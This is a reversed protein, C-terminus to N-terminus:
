YIFNGNGNFKHYIWGSGSEIIGGTAVPENSQYKIIVIGNKGAANYFGGSGSATTSGGNAYVGLSYQGPGGYSFDIYGLNQFEAPAIGGGAGTSSAASGAGGGSGGYFNGPGFRIGSSGGNGYGGDTSTPQLGTGPTYIDGGLSIWAGGGSGGNSGEEVGIDGGQGGGLATKSLFTSNTGNAGRAGGGGITVPYTGQSLISSSVIVGGAGGGAVGGTGGAAGGGGGGAVVLYTISLPPIFPTFAIKDEGLTAVEVLKDGWYVLTGEQRAM